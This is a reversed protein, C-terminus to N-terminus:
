LKKVLFLSMDLFWKRQEGMFLVEKDILTEEHCPLLETVEKPEFELGLERAIEEVDATVKKMSTKFGDFDDMLSPTM